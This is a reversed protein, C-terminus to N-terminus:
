LWEPIPLGHDRYWQRVKELEAEEEDLHKALAADLQEQEVHGYHRQGDAVAENLRHVLEPTEGEAAIRERLWAVYEVWRAYRWIWPEYPEALVEDSM